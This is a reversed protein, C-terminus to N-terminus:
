TQRSHQDYLERVSKRKPFDVSIGDIKIEHIKGQFLFFTLKSSRGPNSVFDELSQDIYLNGVFGISSEITWYEIMKVEPDLLKTYLEDIDEYVFFENMDPIFLFMTHQNRTIRLYEEVDGIYYGGYYVTRGELHKIPQEIYGGLNWFRVHEGDPKVVVDKDKGRGEVIIPWSYYGYKKFIDMEHAFRRSTKDPDTSIETKPPVYLVFNYRQILSMMFALQNELEPNSFSQIVHKIDTYASLFKCYYAKVSKVDLVGLEDINDLINVRDYRFEEKVLFSEGPTTLVEEENLGEIYTFNGQDYKILLMCCDEDVFRRSVSASFSKSSFGPDNLIMGPQIKTYPNIGRWLLVNKLQTGHKAINYLNTIISAYISYIQRHRMSTVTITPDFMHAKLAKSREYSKRVIASKISGLHIETMLPMVETEVLGGPKWYLTYSGDYMQYKTFGEEIIEKNVYM